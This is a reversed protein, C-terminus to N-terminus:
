SNCTCGQSPAIWVWCQWLRKSTYTMLWFAFSFLFYVAFASAMRLSDDLSKSLYVVHFMTASSPRKM